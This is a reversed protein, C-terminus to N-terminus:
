IRDAQSETRCYHTSSVNAAFQVHIGNSLVFYTFAGLEVKLNGKSGTMVKRQSRTELAPTCEPCNDILYANFGNGLEKRYGCKCLVYGNKWNLDVTKNVNATKM